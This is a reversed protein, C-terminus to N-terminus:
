VSITHCIIDAWLGYAKKYISFYATQSHSKDIYESCKRWHYATKKSDFYAFINGYEIEAEAASEYDCRTVANNLAEVIHSEAEDFRHVSCLNKSYRNHLWGYFRDKETEPLAFENVHEILWDLFTFKENVPLLFVYHKFFAILQTNASLKQKFTIQEYEIWPQILKAATLIDYRLQCTVCM